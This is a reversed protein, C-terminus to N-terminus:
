GGVRDTRTFHYITVSETIIIDPYHRQMATHLQGISLFGDARAEEDTVFLLSTFVARHVDIEITMKDNEVNVLQGPGFEIRHGRRIATRKAGTRVANFYDPHLLLKFVPSRPSNPQVPPKSYPDYM